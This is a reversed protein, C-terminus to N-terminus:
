HAHHPLLLKFDSAKQCKVRNTDTPHSALHSSRSTTSAEHKHKKSCATRQAPEKTNLNKYHKWSKYNSLTYVTEGTDNVVLSIFGANHNNDLFNAVEAACENSSFMVHMIFLCHVM